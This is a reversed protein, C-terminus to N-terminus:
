KENWSKGFLENGNPAIRIVIEKDIQEQIEQSYHQLQDLAVFVQKGPVGRYLELIRVTASTAINKFLFSDHCLAPLQTLTMVAIDFTILSRFRSGTGTDNPTLFVYKSPSLIKLEPAKKQGDYIYDTLEELKKNIQSTVYAQEKEFLNQYVQEANTKDDTYKKRAKYVDIGKVLHEIEQHIAMYNGLAMKKDDNKGSFLDEIKALLEQEKQTLVQERNTLAKIQINIEDKLIHTLSKHFSNIEEIKKLNVDPFFVQIDNDIQFNSEMLNLNAQMEKIRGSVRRRQVQLMSLEYRLQYVIAMQESSLNVSETLLTEKQIEADGQLKQLHVSAKKLQSDSSFSKEIINLKQAKTFTSLVEKTEKVVKSQDDLSKFCDFMKLLRRISADTQEKPFAHLPANENYNEKNYIRFYLSILDRWTIFPLTVKYKTFLFDTFEKIDIDKQHAFREDCIEVNNPHTTNRKFYYTNGGFDFAFCLEHHGVNKIIDDTKAYLQGGFVFDIALLVSTKGISNAGDADGAIINLGPHFSIKKQKFKECYIFKLM